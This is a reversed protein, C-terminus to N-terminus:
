EAGIVFSEAAEDLVKMLMKESETGVIDKHYVLCLGAPSCDEDKREFGYFYMMYSYYNIKAKFLFKGSLPVFEVANECSGSERYEDVACYVDDDEQIAIYPYDAENGYESDPAYTCLLEVECAHSKTHKFSFDVEYSYNSFFGSYDDSILHKKGALRITEM